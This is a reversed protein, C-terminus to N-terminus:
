RFCFYCLGFFSFIVVDFPLTRFVQFDSKVFIMVRTIGVSFDGSDAAYDANRVAIRSPDTFICRQIDM